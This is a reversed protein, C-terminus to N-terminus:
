ILMSEIVLSMQSTCLLISSQNKIINAIQTKSCKFILGLNNINVGPIEKTYNIVEVKKLTLYNKKKLGNCSAMERARLKAGYRDQNETLDKRLNCSPFKITFCPIAKFYRADVM